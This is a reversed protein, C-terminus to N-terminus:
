EIWEYFIYDSYDSGNYLGLCMNTGVIDLRKFPVDKKECLTDWLKFLSPKHNGIEKAWIKTGDELTKVDTLTLIKGKM